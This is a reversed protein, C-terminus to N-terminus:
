ITATNGNLICRSCATKASNEKSEDEHDIGCPIQLIEYHGCSRKSCIYYWGLVAPKSGRRKWEIWMDKEDLSQSAGILRDYCVYGDTVAYYYEPVECFAYLNSDGNIGHVLVNVNSDDLSDVERLWEWNEATNPFFGSLKLGNEDKNIISVEIVNTFKWDYFHITIQDGANFIKALKVTTATKM